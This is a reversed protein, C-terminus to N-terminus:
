KKLANIRKTLEEFSDCSELSPSGNDNQNAVDARSSDPATPTLTEAYIPPPSLTQISSRPATEESGTANSGAMKPQQIIVPNLPQPAPMNASPPQATKLGKSKPGDRENRPRDLDEKYLPTVLSDKQSADLGKPLEFPVSYHSAIAELYNDVLAKDPTKTQLKTILRHNVCDNRNEMAGVAFDRGFKSILMDRVVMLEKVGLRPAVYIISCVAEEISEECKSFEELLMFRALVLECYLETIELAETQFDQSIVHEVKIRASELKGKELSHAIERRLGQSDGHLKQQIIKLRSCVLKLQVKCKNASFM